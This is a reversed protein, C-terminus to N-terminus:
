VTWSTGDSFNLTVSGPSVIASGSITKGQVHAAFDNYAAAVGYTDYQWSGSNGYPSTTNTEQWHWPYVQKIGMAAFTM